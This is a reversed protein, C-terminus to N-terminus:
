AFDGAADDPLEDFLADVSTEIQDASAIATEFTEPPPPEAVVPEAPVPEPASPAPPAAEPPAIQQAPAPTAGLGGNPAPGWAVSGPEAEPAIDSPGFLADTPLRTDWESFSGDPTEVGAYDFGAEVHRGFGDVYAEGQFGEIVVDGDEIRQYGLSGGVTVTGPIRYSGEVGVDLFSGDETEAYTADIGGGVVAGNALRLSGDADVHARWHDGERVFESEARGSVLGWPTPFTGQARSSLEVNGDADITLDVDGYPLPGWDIGGQGSLDLGDDSLGIDYGQGIVDSTHAIGDQGVSAGISAYGDVGVSASFQGDDFDVDILGGTAADIGDLVTDDILDLAGGAAGFTVTNVASGATGLVDGPVTALAGVTDAAADAVDTAADWAADAIDGAKDKLWGLM